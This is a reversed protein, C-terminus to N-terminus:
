ILRNSRNNNDMQQQNAEGYKAVDTYSKNQPEAQVADIMRGSKNNQGRREDVFVGKIKTRKMSKSLEPFARVFLKHRYAGKGFGSGTARKFDYLNLQRQFSAFQKMRPFYTPLTHQEFKLTDKIMFSEGDPLFYAIKSGGDMQELDALLRHLKMPFTEQQSHNHPRAGLREQAQDLESTPPLLSAAVTGSGRRGTSFSSAAASANSFHMHHGVGLGQFQQQQLLDMAFGGSTRLGAGSSSNITGGGFSVGGSSPFATMESMLQSNKAVGGPQQQAQLLQQQLVRLQQKQERLYHEMKTNQEQLQQVEWPQPGMSPYTPFPPSNEGYSMSQNTSAGIGGASERGGGRYGMSSSRLQPMMNGMMLQMMAAQQGPFQAPGGMGGISASLLADFMMSDPHNMTTSANNSHQVAAAAQGLMSSGWAGAGVMQSVSQHHPWPPSGSLPPQPTTSNMMSEIGRPDMLSSPPPTSSSSLGHDGIFGGGLMISGVLPSTSKRREFSRSPQNHLVGSTPQSLFSNTGLLDIDAAVAAPPASARPIGGTSLAFAGADHEENLPVAPNKENSDEAGGQGRSKREGGSAGIYNM